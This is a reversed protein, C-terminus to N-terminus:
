ALKCGRGPDMLAKAAVGVVINKGNKVERLYIDQIPNHNKGVTFPGRPSDITAREIGKVLDARAGVDGKVADLGAALMQAADYGQVAYVDAEGKGRAEFATRFANDKPTDLGDGYHLTTLLGEAAEGQAKLTGDTLFGTSYLPISKRLGAAHYDKVFKVAGGGAFFVFVADPKIEAIKTLLAQFETNPFPLYLEEVVKGGAKEYGEKFGGLIEEGGAYKWTLTVARKHGREVMVRGMPYGPQWNSFSSRFIGSACLSGTAANVGANPIILLSNTDRAVKSVGLQVGSHVTGVIVDVKDRTVLKNTNDAAKGPDSEDDVAVYEVPRGGLKGGREEVYLKFAETINNGLAAYTGSYPLLFGVKVPAIQGTASRVPAFGAAVAVGAVGKLATRRSIGTCMNRNTLTM